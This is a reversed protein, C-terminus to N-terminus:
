GKRVKEIVMTTPNITILRNGERYQRWYSSAWLPCSECIKAQGSWNEGLLDRRLKTYSEGDWIEKLTNKLLNGMVPVHTRDTLLLTQCCLTVDGNPMIYTELFPSSCVIRQSYPSVLFTDKMEYQTKEVLEKKFGLEAYLIVMDVYDLWYDIFSDKEHKNEDQVIFSVGVKAPYRGLEISKTASLLHVNRKLLAYDGGRVKLYTEPSHADMSVYLTFFKSLLDLHKHILLGNTTLHSRVGKEVFVENLQRFERYLTPEEYGGFKVYVGKQKPIEDILKEVVEHRITDSANFYSAKYINHYPCNHVLLGDAVYTHTPDTTLDYVKQPKDLTITEISCITTYQKTNQMLLKGVDKNCVIDAPLANTLQRFTRGFQGYSRMNFKKLRIVSWGIKALSIDREEDKRKGEETYHSSWGDFEVDIKREPIAYDAFYRKGNPLEIMYESVHRIGLMDLMKGVQKQAYGDKGVMVSSFKPDFRPNNKLWRERQDPRSKGLSHHEGTLFYKLKKTQSVKRAIDPNRMPNSVKMRISTLQRFKLSFIPKPLMGIAFLRKRTKSIKQGILKNNRHMITGSTYSHWVRLIKDGKQLDKAQKWGNETWFPHEPTATIFYLPVPEAYRKNHPFVRHNSYGIKLLISADREDVFTVKAPVKKLTGEEYSWVVEGVSIQEIPKKSGDILTIKTGAPFCHGCSLNCVNGVIINVSLPFEGHSLQQQARSLSMETVVQPHSQIGLKRKGYRWYRGLRTKNQKITSNYVLVMNESQM